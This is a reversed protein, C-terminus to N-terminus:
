VNFAYDLVLSYDDRRIHRPNAVFQALYAANTLRELLPHDASNTGLSVYDKDLYLNIWGAYKTSQVYDCINVLLTTFHAYHETALLLHFVGTFYSYDIIRPLTRRLTALQAPSLADWVSDLQETTATLNALIQRTEDRTALHELDRQAIVDASASATNLTFLREQISPILAAWDLVLQPNRLRGPERIASVDLVSFALQLTLYHSLGESILIDPLRRRAEVWFRWTFYLFKGTFPLYSIDELLPHQIALGILTPFQPGFPDAPAPTVLDIIEWARLFQAIRQQHDARNGIAKLGFGDHWIMLYPLLGPHETKLLQHAQLYHDLAQGFALEDQAFTMAYIGRATHQATHYSTPVSQTAWYVVTRLTHQIVRWFADTQGTHAALHELGLFTANLGPVHDLLTTFGPQVRLQDPPYDLWNRIDALAEGAAQLVPVLAALSQHHNMINHKM